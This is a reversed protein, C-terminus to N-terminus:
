TFIFNFIYFCVKHIVGLSAVANFKNWNTAKSIWELNERSFKLTKGNFICFFVKLFRWLNHRHADVWQGDGHCQANYLWAGCGQDTASHAHGHPQEQNPVAHAAQNNWRRGPHTALEAESRITTTWRGRPLASKQNAGSITATCKRALRLRAPLCGARQGSNKPKHFNLNKTKRVFRALSTSLSPRWKSPVDLNLSVSLNPNM